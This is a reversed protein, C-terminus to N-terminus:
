QCSGIVFWPVRLSGKRLWVCVNQGVSTAQYLARSVSVENPESRPGWPDITFYYTTSKGSSIRKALVQTQFVQGESRDLLANAQAMAGFGYFFSLFLFALFAWRRERMGRDAGVVLITLVMSGVIALKLIPSWELFEFDWVSRLTLVASPVIFALFLDARVDHRRGEMQYLGGGTALLIVAIGPIIALIAIALEYPRPYLWGWVSAIGAAWSLVTAIKKAKALKQARDEPTAAIRQDEVVQALSEEREQADLNALGAFWGDFVDDRKLMLSVKLKKTGPSRSHLELTSVYQTRTIRWGAIDDRRLSRQSKVGHWEIRDAYLVIKSKFTYLLLYSGLAVFLFSLFVFFLREGPGKMEHGMGFYIMGLLGGGANGCAVLTLFIRNGISTRYTRPLLSAGIQSHPFQGGRVEENM